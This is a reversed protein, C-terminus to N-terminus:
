MFFIRYKRKTQWHKVATKSNLEENLKIMLLNDTNEVKLKNRHQTLILTVQSFVHEVDINICTSPLTLAINLLMQIQPFRQGNKKESKHM